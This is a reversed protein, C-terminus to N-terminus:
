AAIAQEVTPADGKVTTRRVDRAQNTPFPRGRHMTQRNDWIVLDDVQWKHSYVFERQTAHETLDRLLLRAEPLEWGLIRGIHSSLYISKRGTRALTRVLRQRVPRFREREEPTFERFGIAERSFLQSNECVLDEIVSKTDEDLAEYAAGMHAFETNGGKSPIRVARLLSYKAPVAKFSSDSHWLRNGIAFLRRRDDAGFPKNEGDLNSVDAFTTPLRFDAAARLTNRSTDELPGLGKTFGLHQENTLPQNHFVLVAYRDMGNHIEEAQAPSLPERLDIGEVEAGIHTGLPRFQISM